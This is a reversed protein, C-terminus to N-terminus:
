ATHLATKRFSAGAARMFVSHVASPAAFYHLSAAQPFAGTTLSGRRRGPIGDPPVPSQGPRASEENSIVRNRNKKLEQAVSLRFAPNTGTLIIVGM